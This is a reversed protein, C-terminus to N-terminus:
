QEADHLAESKGASAGSIYLHCFTDYDIITIDPHLESAQQVDAPVVNEWSGVVLVLKPNSVEVGHTDLAHKANEPVKFYESYNHLQAIGDYVYEIFKRRSSKKNTLSKYKFAATKLDYIDYFGDHRRVLLDPNITLEDMEFKSKIWKFSKEYLFSECSFATQVVEPHMRLFEGLTTEHVGQSLYMNQFQGAVSSAEDGASLTHLVVVNKSNVHSYFRKLNGARISNRVVFLSLINKCRYANGKQNILLCHDISMSEFSKDFAFLSGSGVTGVLLTKQSNFAPFRRKVEDFDGERALCIGSFSSQAEAVMILPMSATNDFQNLYSNIPQTKSKKLTLGAFSSTAGLLEAVYYGECNTVMLLNPFLLKEAESVLRGDHLADAADKLYKNWYRFTVNTFDVFDM